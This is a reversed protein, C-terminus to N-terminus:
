GDFPIYNLIKCFETSSKSDLPLRYDYNM